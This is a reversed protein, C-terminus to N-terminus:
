RTAPQFAILGSVSAFSSLKKRFEEHALSLTRGAEDRPVIEHEALAVKELEALTVKLAQPVDGAGPASSFVFDLRVRSSHHVSLERVSLEGEVTALVRRLEGGAEDGEPRALRQGRQIA